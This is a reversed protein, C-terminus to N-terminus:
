APDAMKRGGCNPKGHTRKGFDQTEFSARVFEPLEVQEVKLSANTKKAISFQVPGTQTCLALMADLHALEVTNSEEDTPKAPQHLLGAIALGPKFTITGLSGGGIEAFALSVRSERPPPASLFVTLDTIRRERYKKGDCGDWSWAKKVMQDDPIAQIIGKSLHVAFSLSPSVRWRRPLSVGCCLSEFDVIRNFDKLAAAGATAKVTVRKGDLDIASVPGSTSPKFTLNQSEVSDTRYVLTATHDFMPVAPAAIIGCSDDKTGYLLFGYSILALRTEGDKVKGVTALWKEFSVAM